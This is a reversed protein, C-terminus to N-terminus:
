HLLVRIEVWLPAEGSLVSRRNAARGLKRLSLHFRNGQLRQRPGLELRPRQGPGAAGEWPVARCHNIPPLGVALDMGRVELLLAAQNPM